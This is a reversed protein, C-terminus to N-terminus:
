VACSGDHLISNLEALPIHPQWQGAQVPGSRAAPMVLVLDPGDLYWARYDDTYNYRHGPDFRAIDIGETVTKEVYPRALPPLATLPDVNRCFLDALALQKGRQLDFTFTTIEANPHAGGLYSFIRFVVSRIGPGHEFTEYTLDAQGDRVLGDDPHGFRTFFDRVFEKLPPGATQDKLLDEPYMASLQVAIHHGNLVQRKCVGGAQDWTGGNDDCFAVSAAEPSPDAFARSDSGMGVLTVGATLVCLARVMFGVRWRAVVSQDTM